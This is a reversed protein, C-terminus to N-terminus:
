YTEENLILVHDFIDLQSARHVAALWSLCFRCSEAAAQLATIM